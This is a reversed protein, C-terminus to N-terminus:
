VTRDGPSQPVSVVIRLIRETEGTVKVRDAIRLPALYVIGETDCICRVQRRLRSPLKLDTLFDSVSKSGPAGLPHFKEGDERTRCVLPGHVCDADIMEVGPSNDRCHADFAERDMPAFDCRVRMGGPLTLEGPRPVSLHIPGCSDCSAAEIVLEDRERRAAYAGPLSIGTPGDADVLAALEALREASMERMPADIRELASRVAHLRVADSAEALLNADLVIRGPAIDMVSRGLLDGALLSLAEEADGAASALRGVAEDVGGGFRERLMPLLENRLFNRAFRTEANTADTRWSLGRRSCFEEIEVRRVGLLPRVLRIGGCPLERDAPIGALGRLHTGRFLRFLVTEVNDDAHHAVAVATAGVQAAARNFFDLRANRAALEISEGGRRARAAVECTQSICPLGWREALEEVFAADDSAQERLLHNLHAVTLRYARGDERALEVLAALMAVSDAGGSVGVLVGQDRSILRRGDIFRAVSRVFPDPSTEHQKM